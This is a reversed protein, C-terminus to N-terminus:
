EDEQPPQLLPLLHSQREEESPLQPVHSGTALLASGGRAEERSGSQRSETASSSGKPVRGSSTRQAARVLVTGAAHSADGTGADGSGGVVDASGGRSGAAQPSASTVTLNPESSSGGGRLGGEELDGSGSGAAAAGRGSGSGSGSRDPMIRKSSSRKALLSKSSAPLTASADDQSVASTAPPLATFGEEPFHMSGAIVQADVPYCCAVSILLLGAILALLVTAVEGPWTM